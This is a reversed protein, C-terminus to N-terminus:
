PTDDLDVNMIDGTDTNFVNSNLTGKGAITSQDFLSGANNNDSLFKAKLERKFTWLYRADSTSVSGLATSNMALTGQAQVMTEYTYGKYITNPSSTTTTNDWVKHIDFDFHHYHTQGPTLCFNNRNLVVNGLRWEPSHYPSQDINTYVTGDGSIRHIGMAMQTAATETGDRKKMLDYISFKITSEGHNQLTLNGKAGVIIFRSNISPQVGGITGMFSMSAIKTMDGQGLVPADPLNRVDRTGDPITVFGRDIYNYYKPALTKSITWLAPSLRHSKYNLYSYSCEGHQYIKGYNNEKRKVMVTSGSKARRAAVTKARSGRRVEQSAARAFDSAREAIGVRGGRRAPRALVAQKWFGVTM